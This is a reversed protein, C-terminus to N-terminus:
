RVLKDVAILIVVAAIFLLRRWWPLGRFGPTVRGLHVEPGVLQPCWREARRWRWTAGFLARRKYFYAASLTSSGVTISLLSM